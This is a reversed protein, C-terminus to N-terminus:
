SFLNLYEQFEYLRNRESGTKERLIQIREFEKLLSNATPFTINLAKSTEEVSFIPKSFLNQLLSLGLKTRRGLEQTIKKECNLKLGSM